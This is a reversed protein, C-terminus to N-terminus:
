FGKGRGFIVGFSCTFTGSTLGGAISIGFFSISIAFAVGGEM